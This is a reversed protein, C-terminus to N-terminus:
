ENTQNTRKIKHWIITLNLGQSHFFFFVLPFCFGAVRDKEGREKGDVMVQTVVVDGAAARSSFGLGGVDEPEAKGRQRDTVPPPSDASLERRRRQRTRSRATLLFNLSTSGLASVSVTHINLVPVPDTLPLSM